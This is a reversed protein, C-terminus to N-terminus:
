KKLLTVAEDWDPQFGVIVIDDGINPNFVRNHWLTASHAAEEEKLIRVHCPIKYSQTFQQFSLLCKGEVLLQEVLASDKAFLATLEDSFEIARQYHTAQLYTLAKKYVDQPDNHKQVQFKLFDTSEEPNEKVMLVIVGASLQKGEGDYVAPRMGQSPRGGDERLAIQRIRSQWTLFHHSYDHPQLTTESLM